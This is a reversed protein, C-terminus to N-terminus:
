GDENRDRLLLVDGQERRSACPYRWQAGGVLIRINKLGTALPKVAFGAPVKLAAVAQESAPRKDPKFTHVQAGVDTGDGQQALAPLALVCALALVCPRLIMPTSWRQIDGTVCPKPMPRYPRAFSLAIRRQFWINGAEAFLSLRAWGPAEVWLAAQGFVATALILSNTVIFLGPQGANRQLLYLRDLCGIARRVALAVSSQHRPQAVAHRIQHLLTLILLASAGWGLWDEPRM